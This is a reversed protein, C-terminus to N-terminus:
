FKLSTIIFCVGWYTFWPQCQLPIKSIQSKEVIWFLPWPLCYRFIYSYVQAILQCIATVGAGLLSPLLIMVELYAQTM